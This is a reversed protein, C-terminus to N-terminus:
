IICVPALSIEFLDSRSNIFILVSATPDLLHAFLYDDYLMMM